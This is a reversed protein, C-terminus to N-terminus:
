ACRKLMDSLELKIQVLRGHRLAHASKALATHQSKTWYRATAIRLDSIEHRMSTLRDSIYNADMMVAIVRKIM